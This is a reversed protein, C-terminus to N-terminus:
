GLGEAPQASVSTGGMYGLYAPVLPLVCPSVFSLLGALLSVPISLTAQELESELSFVGGLSALLTMSDTLMLVGMALLFIGSAISIVRMYRNLKRLWGSAAEFLVGVLLFPIGFGLSYFVLMTVGQWLDASSAAWTLVTALVPGVCPTWGAAFFFGMMFSSLYGLRPRAQVHVRKESYLFPITILGLVHLGFIIILVGGIRQIWLRAGLLLQGLATATAGLLVFISTFGLVFFV